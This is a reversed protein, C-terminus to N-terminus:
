RRYVLYRAPREYYWGSPITPFSGGNPGGPQPQPLPILFGPDKDVDYHWTSFAAYPQKSLTVDATFYTEFLQPDDGPDAWRHWWAYYTFTPPEVPFRAMEVYDPGDTVSSLNVTEMKVRYPRDALNTQGSMSGGPGLEPNVFVIGCMLTWENAAIIKSPRYPGNPRFFQIPGALVVDWYKYDTALPGGFEPRPQAEAKMMLAKQVSETMFHNYSALWQDARERIEEPVGIDPTLLQVEPVELKVVM